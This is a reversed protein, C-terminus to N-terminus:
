ASSWEVSASMALNGPRLHAFGITEYIKTHRPDDTILRLAEASPGLQVFIAEADHKLEPEVRVRIMATKTV